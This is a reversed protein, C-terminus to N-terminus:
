PGQGIRVATPQVGGISQLIVDRDNDAGAYKVVGDMNVDAPAYGTATATPPTGGIAVLVADRDNLVGAYRVLGDHNVEGPWLMHVGNVWKQADTGFTNTAPDSLDVTVVANSLFIPDSLTVGLHNRHRVRLFYSGAGVGFDIPGSGNAATVQGDRHLLGARTARVTATDVADLLELWVWDVVADPGNVDMVGQPMLWPGVGNGAQFFPISYPNVTPLLGQQRLDDRMLASDPVYAGGLRMRLRLLARPDPISFYRALVIRSVGGIPCLGAVVLKGDNASCMSSSVPASTGGFETNVGRQIGQGAFAGFLTDEFAFSRYRRVTWTPTINNNSTQLVYTPCAYFNGMADTGIAGTFGDIMEDYSYVGFYVMSLLTGITTASPGDYLSCQANGWWASFGPFQPWSTHRGLNVDHHNIIISGYIGGDVLVTSGVPGQGDLDLEFPGNEPSVIRLVGSPSAAIDSIIPSSVTRFGQTGFTTDLDGQQDIRCIWSSGFVLVEGDPLLAAGKASYGVSSTDHEIVRRGMTGFSSDVMGNSLFRELVIDPSQPILGGTSKGLLLLTGDDHAVLEVFQGLTSSTVLGSDGFTPDVFGNELLKMLRSISQGDVTQQFALIVGLDAAPMVMPASTSDLDTLVVKGDFHFLSDLYGTEQAVCAGALGVSVWVAITRM